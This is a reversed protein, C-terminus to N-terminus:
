VCGHITRSKKNLCFVAYSISVHSSNLRTSKRDEVLHGAVILFLEGVQAGEVAVHHGMGALLQEEHPLLEALEDLPILFLLQVPLDSSRRTPLSHLYLYRLCCAFHVPVAHFRADYD